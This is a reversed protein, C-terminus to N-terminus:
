EYSLAHKQAHLSSRSEENGTEVRRPHVDFDCAPPGAGGSPIEHQVGDEQRGAEPQLDLVQAVLLVGLEAVVDAGGARRQIAVDLRVGDPKVFGDSTSVVGRAASALQREASTTSSSSFTSGIEACQREM